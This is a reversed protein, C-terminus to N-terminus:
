VRTLLEKIDKDAVDKPDLATSIIDIKDFLVKYKEKFKVMSSLKDNDLWFTLHSFTRSLGVAKHMSLSAGLIPTAKCHRSVKIASISDEVVVVRTDFDIGTTPYLIHNDPRGMTFVKPVRTPFYRGQYLIIKDEGDFYPIILQENRASWGLKNESIEETTLSYQKLWAYPERPIDFTFDNPFEVVGNKIPTLLREMSKVSTGESTVYYGCGFCWKSGDLYVGLNNKSGCKPCPEHHSFNNM